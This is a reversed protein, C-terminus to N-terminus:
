GRRPRGQTRWGLVADRVDGRALNLIMQNRGLSRPRSAFHYVWDPHARYLDSDANVMEPEVWLGFDMGLANVNEILKGLGDPFKHTNVGWDGLGAKDSDRAGFWGDDMVFLEVGLDAAIRAAALQNDINVDFGTAYWSNYLVPRPANAFTKPLIHKRQLCHLNHSAQGYGQAYGAFSTPTEFSDRPALTWAFDFDSIGTSISTQGYPSVETVLQWNGSYALACTYIDGHTEGADPSAVMVFPNSDFGTIGRRSELLKKGSTLPTHELRFDAGWKSSFYRLDYQQFNPLRWTASYARELTVVDNGQNILRVKRSIIDLEPYITYILELHLNYSTDQLHLTLTDNDISAREVEFLGSRTGDAFSVKLGVEGFKLDGWVPYEEQSVGEAREHGGTIALGQPKGFDDAYSLRPGWYMHQVRGYDDVGLAYSTHMSSLVWVDHGSPTTHHSISQMM